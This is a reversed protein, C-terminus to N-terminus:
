AKPAVIVRGSRSVMVESLLKTLAYVTEIHPVPTDTLRSLEVVSGVLAEVELPRGSETDQLMSSRGRGIERARAIRQEPTGRFRVGLKEAVAQAEYMMTLALRSAEPSDHIELIDGHTLAGIPNWALNGWLKFWKEARIDDIVPAEIGAKKLTDSLTQVRATSSGDLEGLPFKDGPTVTHRVVGPEIVEAGKYVVCGIIRHPEINAAIRGDPDVSALRTGSLHGGHEHFYWWPIGNQLTVVSTNPGYLSRLDSALPGIQHAKVGLLVCDQVGLGQPKAEARISRVEVTENSDRNLLRIGRQKMAELHAGRAVVTVEEGAHALLAAMYAGIAGAGVVCIKM